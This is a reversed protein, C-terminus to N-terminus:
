PFYIGPTGRHHSQCFKNGDFVSGPLIGPLYEMYDQVFTLEICREDKETGLAVGPEKKGEDAVPAWARLLQTDCHRQEQDTCYNRKAPADRLQRRSPACCSPQSSRRPM